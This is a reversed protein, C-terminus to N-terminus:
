VAPIVDWGVLACIVDLRPLSIASDANELVIQKAQFAVSLGAVSMMGLDNAGDGACIVESLDVGYASAWAQVAATKAEADVVPGHTRGTLRGNEVELGNALYIDVDYALAMPGVIESFGGSVLGFKAGHSHATAVCERAGPTARVDTLVRHFVDESIGELTRVRETLSEKFDLEGRMAATTVARVEDAKGAYEALMEIVESTIFTSDVDTVILGPGDTALKGSILASDIGLATAPTRLEDRLGEADDAHFLWTVADLGSITVPRETVEPDVEGIRARIHALLSPPIPRSAVLSFRFTEGERKLETTM